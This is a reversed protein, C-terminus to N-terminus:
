AQIPPNPLQALRLSVQVAHSFNKVKVKIETTTRETVFAQPWVFVGSSTATEIGTENADILLVLELFAITGDIAGSWGSFILPTSDGAALPLIDAFVLIGPVLLANAADLQALNNTDASIAVPAAPASGPMKVVLANAIEQGAENPVCAGAGQNRWTVAAEIASNQQVTPM